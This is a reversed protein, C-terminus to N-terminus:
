AYQVQAIVGFHYSMRTFSTLVLEQVLAEEPWVHEDITVRDYSIKDDTAVVPLDRAPIAFVHLQELCCCWHLEHRNANSVVLRPFLNKNSIVSRNDLSTLVTEKGFLDAHVMAFAKIYLQTSTYPGEFNKKYSLPDENVDLNKWRTYRISFTALKKM